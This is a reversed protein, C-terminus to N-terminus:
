LDAPQGWTATYCQAYIESVEKSTLKFAYKPRTTLASVEDFWRAENRFELRVCYDSVPLELFEDEPTFRVRPTGNLWDIEAVAFIFSSPDGVKWLELWLKAQSGRSLKSKM